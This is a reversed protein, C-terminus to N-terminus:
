SYGSKGWFRYYITPFGEVDRWRYKSDIIGTRSPLAVSENGNRYFSEQERVLMMDGQFFNGDQHRLEASEDIEDSAVRVTAIQDAIDPTLRFIPKFDISSDNVHTDDDFRNELLEPQNRLINKFLKTDVKQHLLTHPDIIDNFHKKEDLDDDDPFFIRSPSKVPFEFSKSTFQLLILLFFSFKEMKKVFVVVKNINLLRSVSELNHSSLFISLILRLLNLSVFRTKKNLLELVHALVM